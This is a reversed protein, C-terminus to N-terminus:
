RGIRWKERKRGERAPGEEQAPPRGPEPASQKTLNARTADKLRGGIRRRVSEAAMAGTVCDLWHNDPSVRNWFVRSGFGPTFTAEQVESAMHSAFEAHQRRTANFLCLSEPAGQPLVFGAHVKAKWHDSYISILRTRTREPVSLRWEDGSLARASKKLPTWKEQDRASGHGKSPMYRLPLSDCFAYTQKTEWGSDILMIDPSKATLTSDLWGPECVKTVFKAAAEFVRAPEPQPGQIVEVMGYDVIWGRWDAAWGCVVWWLHHLGLDLFGTFSTADAPIISRPQDTVKALVCSRTFGGVATSTIEDHPETWVFQKLNKRAGATAEREALWEQEALDAMSTLDPSAVMSNWRFGFKVTKKPKGKVKGRSVEQGEALLVPHRLAKRRDAETWPAKCEQCEYRGAQRAAMMDDHGDWGRFHERAPVIHAHCHPCPVAVQTHTGEEVVERYIRGTETSMTCEGYIRAQGSGWFSKSRAIIETVPDTGRAVLQATDYKDVETLIVVPATHSSRQEEGGGAGMFRLTVGHRFTISEVRGGRSGAGATPVLDAYRMREIMPLLREQFISAGMELKPVGLIVPVRQEFLHYLCPIQFGMLTKGGQVPGSLWYERYDGRDYEQVLLRTWPMFEFRFREGAMPGTPLVIEEEAFAEM